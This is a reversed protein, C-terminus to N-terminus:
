KRSGWHPDCAATGESVDREQCANQSRMELRTGLLIEKWTDRRSRGVDGGNRRGRAAAM